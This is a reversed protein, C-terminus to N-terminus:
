GVGLVDNIKSNGRLSSKFCVYHYTCSQNGKYGYGTIFELTLSCVVYTGVM